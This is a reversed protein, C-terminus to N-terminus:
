AGAEGGKYLRGDEWAKEAKENSVPHFIYDDMEEKRSALNWGSMSRFLAFTALGLFSAYIHRM